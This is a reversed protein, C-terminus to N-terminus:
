PEHGPLCACAAFGTRSAPIPWSGSPTSSSTGDPHLKRIQRLAEGSFRAVAHDGSDVHIAVVEGNHEPELLAKLRAEYIALGREQVDDHDILPSTPHSQM